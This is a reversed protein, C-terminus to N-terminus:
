RGWPEYNFDTVIGNELRIYLAKHYERFQAEDTLLGNEKLEFRTTYSYGWMEVNDLLEYKSLPQGFLRVVEDGTTKKKVIKSVNWDPFDIGDVLSLRYYSLGCSTAALSVLALVALTSHKINVVM